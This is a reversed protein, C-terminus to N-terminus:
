SRAQVAADVAAQRHNLQPLKSEYPPSAATDFETHQIRNLCRWHMCPVHSVADIPKPPFSTVTLLGQSQPSALRRFGSVGHCISWQLWFLSIKAKVPFTQQQDNTHIHAPNTLQDPYKRFYITGYATSTNRNEFDSPQRARARGTTSAQICTKGELRNSSKLTSYVLHLTPAISPTVNSLQHAQCPRTAGRNRLLHMTSCSVSIVTKLNVTRQIRRLLSVIVQVIDSVAVPAPSTRSSLSFSVKSWRRM